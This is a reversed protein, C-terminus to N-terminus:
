KKEPDHLKVLHRITQSLTPRFGFSNVLEDALSNLIDVIDTDVTINKYKKKDPETM